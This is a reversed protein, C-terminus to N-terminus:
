ADPSFLTGAFSCERTATSHAVVGVWGVWWWVMLLSVRTKEAMDM